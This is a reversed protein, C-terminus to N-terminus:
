RLLATFYKMLPIKEASQRHGVTGVKLTGVANGILGVLDMDIGKVAIPATISM